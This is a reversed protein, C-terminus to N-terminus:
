RDVAYVRKQKGPLQVLVEQTPQWEAGEVGQTRQLSQIHPSPKKIKGENLTKTPECLLSELQRAWSM